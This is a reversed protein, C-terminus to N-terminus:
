RLIKLSIMAEGHTRGDEFAEAGGVSLTLDLASLLSFRVDLQGGVDAVRRQSTTRM